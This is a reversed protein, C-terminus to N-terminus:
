IILHIDSFGGSLNQSVAQSIYCVDFCHLRQQTYHSYEAGKDAGFSTRRVIVSTNDRDRQAGHAGHSMARLSVSHNLFLMRRPQLFQKIKALYFNYKYKYTYFRGLM